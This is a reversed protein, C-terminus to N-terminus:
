CRYRFYSRSEQNFMVLLIIRSTRKGYPDRQSLVIQLKHIFDSGCAEEYNAGAYTASRMLQGGIHRGEATKKLRVILKIIDAAFDLLRESLENQM